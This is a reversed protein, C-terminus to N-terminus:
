GIEAQGVAVARVQEPPHVVAVNGGRKQDHGVVTLHLVGHFGHAQSRDVIEALGDLRVLQQFGDALLEATGTVVARLEVPSLAVLRTLHVAPDAQHRGGVDGDQDTACGTRALFM